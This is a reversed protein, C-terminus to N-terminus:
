IRKIFYITGLIGVPKLESLEVLGAQALHVVLLMIYKNSVNQKNGLAKNIDDSIELGFVTNTYPICELVDKLPNSLM